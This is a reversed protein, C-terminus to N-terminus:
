KQVTVIKLKVKVTLIKRILPEILKPSRRNKSWFKVNGFRILNLKIKIKIFPPM